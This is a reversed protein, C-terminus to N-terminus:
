VTDSDICYTSSCVVGENQPRSIEWTSVVVCSGSRCGKQYHTGYDMCITDATSSVNRNDYSTAACANPNCVRVTTSASETPRDTDNDGIDNRVEKM